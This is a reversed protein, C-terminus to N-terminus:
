ITTIIKQLAQKARRKANIVDKNAKRYAASSEAIKAKNAKRYAARYEAIEAKNAKRYAAHTEAIEAKNAKYYAAYEAKHAKRYAASYEILEAKNAKRYDAIIEIVEEKSVIPRYINLDAELLEIYDRELRRADNSDVCPQKIVEIMSWNNWGGKARITAYVLFPYAKDNPNNCRFKHSSKRKTFHTTSGVYCNKVTIDNCVIKYIILNDYNIQLRPM